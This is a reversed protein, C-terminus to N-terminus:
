IKKNYNLDLRIDALGTIKAFKAIKFQADPLCVADIHKAAKIDFGAFLKL